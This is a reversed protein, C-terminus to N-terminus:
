QPPGESPGPGNGGGNDPPPSEPWNGLIDGLSQGASNLADATAQDSAVNLAALSQLNGSAVGLLAMANQFDKQLYQQTLNYGNQVALNMAQVQSSSVGMGRSALAQNYQAKESQVSQDVAAQQGETLKGTEYATIYPQAAAGAMSSINALIEDSASAAKPYLHLPDFYNHVGAPDTVTTLVGKAGGSPNIPTGPAFPNSVAKFTDSLWSM